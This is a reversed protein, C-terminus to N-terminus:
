IPTGSSPSYGNMDLPRGSAEHGEGTGLPITISLITGQGPASTITCSGGLLRAREQIGVLGFGRRHSGDMVAPVDFGNGDDAICIQLASSTKEVTVHVQRAQAHKATNTLAEQIIRFAATEVLSPFRGEEPFHPIVEIGTSEQYQRFYWRLTPVLGLDDLMTPRLDLVLNHIDDLARAALDRMRRVLLRPEHLDAPMAQLGRELGILLLSLAQGAEDHLERAIRQREQEQALIIQTALSELQHNKEEILMTSRDLRDLMENIGAALRVIEPDAGQGVVVRAHTDGEQRRRVMEHLSKLPRLAVDLIIFNVVSSILIAAFIFLAYTM